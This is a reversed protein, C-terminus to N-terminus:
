TRGSGTRPVGFSEGIVDANGAWARRLRTKESRGRTFYDPISSFRDILVGRRFLLHNWLDGDSVDIASTLADFEVSLWKSAPGLGTFYDPWCVVSWGDGTPVVRAESGITEAQEGAHSHALRADADAVEATVGHNRAYGVVAAAVATTDVTRLATLALFLGM